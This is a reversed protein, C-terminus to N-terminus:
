SDQIPKGDYLDVGKVIVQDFLKVYKNGSVFNMASLVFTEEEYLPDVLRFRVTNQEDLVYVGRENAQNFRLDSAEIRLGTLQEFHVTVGSLRLNITDETMLDCHFLLVATDNEEHQMIKVLTAPVAEPLETFQLNVNWGGLVWEIEDKPVAVACYWNPNLVMKGVKGGMGAPPPAAIMKQYDDLTYEEAQDFSLLNEYGDVASSFYGSLPVTVERKIEGVGSRRLSALEEELM